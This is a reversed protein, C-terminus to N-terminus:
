SRGLMNVNELHRRARTQRGRSHSEKAKACRGVPLDPELFFLIGV